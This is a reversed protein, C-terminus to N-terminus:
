LLSTKSPFAKRLEMEKASLQIEEPDKKDRAELAKVFEKSELEALQLGYQHNRRTVEDQGADQGEDGHSGRSRLTLTTGCGLLVVAYLGASIYCNLEATSADVHLGRVFEPQWRLLLGLLSLLVIGAASLAMGARLSSEM